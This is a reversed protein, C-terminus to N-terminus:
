WQSKNQRGRSHIYKRRRIEEKSPLEIDPNNAVRLAQQERVKERLLKKMKSPKLKQGATEVEKELQEAMRRVMGTYPQGPYIKGSAEWDEDSVLEVIRVNHKGKRLILIKDDILYKATEEPFWMKIPTWSLNGPVLGRTQGPQAAVYAGQQTVLRQGESNSSALGTAFLLKAPSLKMISQPLQIDSRPANNATVIGSDQSPENIVHPLEGGFRFKHQQAEQLARQSGYVLSLVEFALAHQAVRKSPDAWHQTMIEQINTMPMFTFLKLLREVEDDPRRMFYGYLEFPPTKFEDLWVANGASKGLKAGASDLLLPVTFGLPEHQWETPMKAHPAEESDRIIKLADIGAVINGYQDSGGIQLQIGLKNYMHWFDWGQMLPYLFEGLSMGDGETLKRKVTDRSLMPGIRTNRALRKTFDYVSLGQLWMNNNLLHRKAAWDKRYGYKDRLTVANTWLRTLQYHIKTVNKSIESNTLNERSQLRGTPDGIRATAGGLLTVAPYGHFWLWFLPMFPLLHGLHLSDATPDVGVYAGIRKVRMIEKIKDPVGAVDKIYGREDLVDWVHPLEGKQIQRAREEWRQEGESVKNLFSTSVGRTQQPACASWSLSMLGRSAGGSRTLCRSAQLRPVM